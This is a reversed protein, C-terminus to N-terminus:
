EAQHYHKMGLLESNNIGLQVPWPHSCAIMGQHVQDSVPMPQELEFFYTAHGYEPKECVIRNAKEFVFIFSQLERGCLGM